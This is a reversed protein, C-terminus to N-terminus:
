EETTQEPEATEEAVTAETEEEAPAANQAAAAVENALNRMERAKIQMKKARESTQKAREKLSAVREEPTMNAEAEAAERRVRAREDAAAQAQKARVQEARKNARVAAITADVSARTRISLLIKDNIVTFVGARWLILLIIAVVALAGIIILITGWVPVGLKRIVRFNYTFPTIDTYNDTGEITATLSYMGSKAENLKNVGTASNYYEKKGEIDTIRILADGYAAKGLVANAEADYKGQVWAAVYPNEAWTNTAKEIVFKTTIDAYDETPNEQTRSELWEDKDQGEWMQYEPNRLSLVVDYEGADVGGANSKVTYFIGSYSDLTAYQTSGNYPKAQIQPIGVAQVVAVTFKYDTRSEGPQPNLATDLFNPASLKYFVTYLGWNRIDLEDAPKYLDDGSGSLNFTLEVEGFMNEYTESAWVGERAPNNISQLAENIRQAAEENYLDQQEADYISAFTKGNLAGYVEIFAGTLNQAEVTFEFEQSLSSDKISVTLVYDGAPMSKNIYNNFSATSRNFTGGIPYVSGNSRKLGLTLVVNDAGTGYNAASVDGSSLRPVPFPVRSPDYEGEGLPLTERGFTRNDISYPNGNADVVTVETAAPPTEPETPDTTEGEDGDDIIMIEDDPTAAKASLANYGIFCSIVAFCLAFVTALLIINKNFVKQRM